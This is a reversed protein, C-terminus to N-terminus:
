FRRSRPWLTLAAALHLMHRDSPARHAAVLPRSPSRPDRARIANSATQASPRQVTLKKRCSCAECQFIGTLLLQTAVPPSLFFSAWGRLADGDRPVASLQIRRRSQQACQPWLRPESRPGRSVACPLTPPRRESGRSPQRAVLKGSLAQPCRPCRPGGCAM